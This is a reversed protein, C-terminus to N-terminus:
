ALLLVFRLQKETRKTVRFDSEEAVNLSVEIVNGQDKPADIAKIGSM